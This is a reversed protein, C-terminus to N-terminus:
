NMRLFVTIDGQENVNQPKKKWLKLQMAAPLEVLEISLEPTAPSMNNCGRPYGCSGGLHIYHRLKVPERGPIKTAVGFTQSPVFHLYQFGFDQANYTILGLQRVASFKLYGERQGGEFHLEADRKLGDFYRRVNYDIEVAPESGLRWQLRTPEPPLAERRSIPKKIVWLREEVLGILLFPNMVFRSEESFGEPSKEGTAYVFLGDIGWWPKGDVIQGFVQGSPVYPGTLLDAHQAVMKARLDLIEKKKKFDFEVMPNIAIPITRLDGGLALSGNKAAPSQSPPDVSSPVVRDTQLLPWTVFTALAAM